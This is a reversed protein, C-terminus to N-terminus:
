SSNIARAKQDPFRMKSLTANMWFRAAPVHLVFWMSRGRLGWNTIVVWKQEEPVLVIFIAQRQTKFINATHLLRLLDESDCYNLAEGDEWMGAKDIDIKKRREPRNQKTM